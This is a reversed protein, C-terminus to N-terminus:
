DGRRRPCRQLAERLLVDLPAEPGLSAIADDVVQHAVGPKWGMTRMAAIADTRRVAAAYKDARLPNGEPSLAPTPAASARQAISRVDVVRRTMIKDPATGTIELRGEHRAQHCSFFRSTLNWPEHTGGESRAIIHHIQVGHSSRCGPTQCRGQDRAEVFRRTAPPIDAHAREPKDGDIDGIHQADCRAQELAHPTIPIMAGAGQQWARDCLRCVTMCIQVPATRGYSSGAGDSEAGVHAGSLVMSALTGLVDNDTMRTGHQEQLTQRAQRFLALVSATIEEFSVTHLRADAEAPDEPRDGPRHGAVLEEIQRVNKDQAAERWARETAPTAVRALEKIASHPLEGTRLADTLEPLNALARAVRLREQATRPAYGVVRELYDVMNVMAFPKWIEVREAARLWRAEEADLAGRRQAISLLQEHVFKWDYSPAVSEAARQGRRAVREGHRRSSHSREEAPPGVLERGWNAYRDVVGAGGFTM